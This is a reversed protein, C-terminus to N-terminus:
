KKMIEKVKVWIWNRKSKEVEENGGEGKGLDMKKQKKVVEENGGEGKGLDM